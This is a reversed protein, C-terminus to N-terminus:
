SAAPVERNVACVFDGCDCLTCRRCPFGLKLSPTSANLHQQLFFFIFHSKWRTQFWTLDCKNVLWYDTKLMKLQNKIIKLKINVWTLLHLQAKFVSSLLKQGGRATPVSVEVTWRHGKVEWRCKFSGNAEGEKAGPSRRPGNVGCWVRLSWLLPQAPGAPRRQFM